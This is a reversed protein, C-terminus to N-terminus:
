PGAPRTRGAHAGGPKRPPPGCRGADAETFTGGFDRDIIPQRGSDYLAAGDTAVTIVMDDETLDHRHAYAIASLMNCFSSYGFHRMSSLLEADLGLERALFARGVETQFLVDLQDTASDSIATIADTNHVNHILPIHKDGIGQINHEGFGNELMTPCELAEAAVIQSGYRQKLHDGAGITGASGTASVFAALRTNGTSLHEFVTALADGTIERHGLYNAFECFQNIIVNQPDLSLQACAEYIERVNSETGPTRIIDNEPDLTWRNLWDFREQSMGAPLVAVGRCDMIRSIAVGSCAYNGTSPWIARQSTPDLRGDRHAPRSLQLCGVGQARHDDPIPREFALVIRAKVGTPASPLEIHEPVATIDNGDFQNYWHVRYNAADPEHRDAAAARARVAEPASMPDKLEAFTPLRIANDRFRAVARDRSAADTVTTALSVDLAPPTSTNPM